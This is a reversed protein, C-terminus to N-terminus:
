KYTEIVKTRSRFGSKIRVKKGLEESLFRILAINAKNDEAKEKISVVYAGKDKDFRVIENKGSKPKIIAKFVAEVISM